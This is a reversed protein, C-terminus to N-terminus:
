RGFAFIESFSPYIPFLHSIAEIKIKQAIALAIINILEGAQSNIITAGLIEGNRHTVLKYIGTTEETLQTAAINKFYHKSVVVDSYFQKAQTETFGVQAIQPNTAIAWPINQYNVKTKSSFLANDVAIKVEYNSINTDSYGGIVDGCAYIQSNTTQLRSNVKISRQNYQVKVAELHLNEVKAQYGACALIEDTEIAENGAQIWKKGNIEKIQSVPTETLVRVGDAELIAQVLYSIDADLSPLVQLTKVILTINFGLNQLIQAWVISDPNGGIIVWNKGVKTVDLQQGINAPTFYNSFEVGMTKPIAGTAILYSRASLKRNNAKILLERSFKAKGVIVDIGIAALIALSYQEEINAIVNEMWQRVQVWSLPTQNNAPIFFQNKVQRIQSLVHPILFNFPTTKEPEILAVKKHQEMAWIAAYRGAFSGGIIVLDHDAM